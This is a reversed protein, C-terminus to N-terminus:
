GDTVLAYNPIKEEGEVVVVGNVAVSAKLPVLGLMCSSCWFVAVGFEDLPSRVVFVLRLSKAKCNPCSQGGIGRPESYAHEYEDMWRNFENRSHIVEIRERGDGM